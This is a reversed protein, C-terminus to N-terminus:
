QNLFFPPYLSDHRRRRGPDTSFGIHGRWRQNPSMVIGFNFWSIFVIPRLPMDSMLMRVWVITGPYSCPRITSATPATQPNNSCKERMQWKEKREGEKQSVAQYLSFCQRLPGNLTFCGVLRVWVIQEFILHFYEMCNTFLSMDGYTCFGASYFFYM